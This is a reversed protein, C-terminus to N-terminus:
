LLFFAGITKVNNKVVQKLQKGKGKLGVNVQRLAIARDVKSQLQDINTQPAPPNDMDSDSTEPFQNTRKNKSNSKTKAKKRAPSEEYDVSLQFRDTTTRKRPQDYDTTKDDGAEGGNEIVKANKRARSLSGTSVFM